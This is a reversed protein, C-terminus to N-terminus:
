GWVRGVAKHGRVLEQDPCSPFFGKNLQYKNQLCTTSCKQLYICQHPPPHPPCCFICCSVNKVNLFCASFAIFAFILIIPVTFLDDPIKCVTAFNNILGGITFIQTGYILVYLRPITDLEGLVSVLSLFFSFLCNHYSSLFIVFYSRICFVQTLYLLFFLM